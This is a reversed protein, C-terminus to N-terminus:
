IKLSISKGNIEHERIDRNEFNVNINMDNQM